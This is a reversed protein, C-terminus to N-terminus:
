QGQEAVRWLKQKRQKVSGIGNHTHIYPHTSHIFLSLTSFHVGNLFQLQM